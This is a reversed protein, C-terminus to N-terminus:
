KGFFLKALILITWILNAAIALASLVIATMARQRTQPWDPDGKGEGALVGLVEMAKWLVGAAMVASAVIRLPDIFLSLASLVIVSIGLVRYYRTGGLGIVAIGVGIWAGIGVAGGIFILISGVLAIFSFTRVLQADNVAENYAPSTSYSTGQGAPTPNLNLSM